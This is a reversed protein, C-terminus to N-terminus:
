LWDVAIANVCANIDSLNFLIEPIHELSMFSNSVAKFFKTEYQQGSYLM